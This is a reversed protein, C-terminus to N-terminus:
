HLATPTLLMPSLSSRSRPSLSALPLFADPSCNSHISRFASTMMQPSPDSISLLFRHAYTYCSLTSGKRTLLPLSAPPWSCFPSSLLAPSPCFWLSFTKLLSSALHYTLCALRSPPTTATRTTDLIFEVSSYVIIMFYIFSMLKPSLPHAYDLNFTIAYGNILLM